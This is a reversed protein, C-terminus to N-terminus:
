QVKECGLLYIDGDFVHGFNYFVVEFVPEEVKGGSVGGTSCFPGMVGLWNCRRVNYIIVSADRSPYFLSIGPFTAFVSHFFFELSLVM